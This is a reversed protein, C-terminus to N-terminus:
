PPKFYFFIGFLKKVDKLNTCFQHPSNYNTPFISNIKYPAPEVESSL